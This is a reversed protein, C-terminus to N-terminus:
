ALGYPAKCSAESTPVMRLAHKISPSVLTCSPFTIEKLDGQQYSAGQSMYCQLGGLVKAPGKPDRGQPLM